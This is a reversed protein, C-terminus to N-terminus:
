ANSSPQLLASSLVRYYGNLYYYMLHSPSCATSVNIKDLFSRGVMEPRVAVHAHSETCLQLYSSPIARGGIVWSLNSFRRKWNGVTCKCSSVDATRDMTEDTDFLGCETKSMESSLSDETINRDSYWFFIDGLKHADGPTLGHLMKSWDITPNPVPLVVTLDNANAKSTPNAVVISQDSTNHSNQAGASAQEGIQTREDAM